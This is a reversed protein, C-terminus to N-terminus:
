GCEVSATYSQSIQSMKRFKSSNKPLNLNLVYVSIQHICFHVTWGKSSVVCSGRANLLLQEPQEHFLLRHCAIGTFKMFNEPFDRVCFVEACNSRPFTKKFSLCILFFLYLVNKVLKKNMFSLAHKSKRQKTLRKAAINKLLEAFSGLTRIFGELISRTFWHAMERRWDKCYKCHCARNLRAM